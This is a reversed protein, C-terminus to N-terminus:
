GSKDGGAWFGTGTNTNGVSQGAEALGDEVDVPAALVVKLAADRILGQVAPQRCTFFSGRKPPM